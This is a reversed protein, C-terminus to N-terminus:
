KKLHQKAYKDILKQGKASAIGRLFLFFIQQQIFSVSCEYNSFIDRNFGMFINEIRIRAMIDMDLDKRYLGEKVGRILNEKEKNLMFMSKHNKLQKYAKPHYRELDYMILPNMTSLMEQAMNLALFLEHIANEAAATCEYCEKEDRKIEKQIVANVLADKDEFHQYITKKSIGMQSAIEDMTISKVGHLFFLKIAKEQIRSQTEKGKM